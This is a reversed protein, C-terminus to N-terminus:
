ASIVEMSGLLNGTTTAGCVLYLALCETGVLDPLALQAFDAIGGVGAIIIPLEASRRIATVGFGNPTGATGTTASLTVSQISKIRADNVNPMIPLFTSSRRTAALAVTTTRNDVDLENTYKVTATVATAGTDAYWELGWLVGAGDVGCRGEAAPGAIDINVMQETALAGSLGGSAALRDVILLQGIVTNSASLKAIYNKKGVGAPPLPWSGVTNHNCYAAAGPVAGLTPFGNSRWLSHIQGAAANSISPKYFRLKASDALGAVLKDMSDLPM